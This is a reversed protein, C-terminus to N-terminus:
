SAQSIPVAVLTAIYKNPSPPTNDKRAVERIVGLADEKKVLENELVLEARTITVKETTLTEVCLDVKKKWDSAADVVDKWASLSAKIAGVDVALKVVPSSVEKVVHANVVVPVGNTDEKFGDISTLMSSKLYLVVMHRKSSSAPWNSSNALSFSITVSGDKICNEKNFTEEGIVPAIIKSPTDGLTMSYEMPQLKVGKVTFDSAGAAYPISAVAKGGAIYVSAKVTQQSGGKTYTVDIKEDDDAEVNELSESLSFELHYALKSSWEKIEWAGGTVSAEQFVSSFSKKDTNTNGTSPNYNVNEGGCAVLGLTSTALIVLPLAQPLQTFYKM